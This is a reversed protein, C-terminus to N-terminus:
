CKICRKKVEDLYSFFWIKLLHSSNLWLKSKYIESELNQFKKVLFKEKLQLSILAHTYAIITSEDEALKSRFSAIKKANECERNASAINGSKILYIILLIRVYLQQDEKFLNPIIQNIDHYTNEIDDNLLNLYINRIIFLTKKSEHVGQLNEMVKEHLTLAEKEDGLKLLLTSQNFYFVVPNSVCNSVLNNESLFDFITRAKKLEEEQMLIIAYNFISQCIRFKNAEKIYIQNNLLVEFIQTVIKWKQAKKEELLLRNALDLPNDFNTKVENSIEEFNSKTFDHELGYIEKSYNLTYATYQVISVDEANAKLKYAYAKKIYEIASLVNKPNRIEHNYKVMYLEGLGYYCQVSQFLQAYYNWEKHFLDENMRLRLTHLYNIVKNIEVIDEKKHLWYQAMFSRLEDFLYSLQNKFYKENSEKWVKGYVKRYVIGKSKIFDCEDMRKIEHFLNQLQDNPSHFYKRIYKLEDETLTKLLEFIKM